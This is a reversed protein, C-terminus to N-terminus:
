PLVEEGDAQKTEDEGDAREAPLFEVVLKDVSGLLAFKEVQGEEDPVTEFPENKQQFVAVAHFGVSVDAEFFFGVPMLIIEAVELVSLVKPVQSM